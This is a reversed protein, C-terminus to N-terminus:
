REESEPVGSEDLRQKLRHIAEALPDIQMDTDLFHRWGRWLSELESRNVVVPNRPRQLKRSMLTGRKRPRARGTHYEIVGTLLAEVAVKPNPPANSNRGNSWGRMYAKALLRLLGEAATDPLLGPRDQSVALAQRYWSEIEDHRPDNCATM